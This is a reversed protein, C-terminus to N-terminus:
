IVQGDPTIQFIGEISQEFIGRYKREARRLEAGQAQLAQLANRLQGNVDRLADETRKRETMDRLVVVAGRIAGAEDRMAGASASVWRSEQGGPLRFFEEADEVTEGRLARALALEDRPRWTVGDPRFAS